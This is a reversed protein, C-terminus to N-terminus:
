YGVRGIAGGTSSLGFANAPLDLFFFQTTFLAGGIQPQNPLVSAWVTMGFPGTSPIAVVVDLNAYLTCGPMGFGTLSALGTPSGSHDAGLVLVGVSNLPLQQLGISFTQGVYPLQNVLMTPTGNSGPCGNGFTALYGVQQDTLVVDDLVAGHASAPSSLSLFEITSSTGTAVFSVARRVWGMDEYSFGSSDFTFVQSVGGVSVQVSKPGPVDPNGALLFSLEYARNPITSVTQRLGGASAGDLDVSRVGAPTSWLSVQDVSGTFVTWGTMAASPAILGNGPGVEFSGNVLLNPPQAVAVTGLFLSLLRSCSLMHCRLFKVAWPTLVMFISVGM